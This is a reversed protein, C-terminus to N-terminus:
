ATRAEKLIQLIERESQAGPVSHMEETKALALKLNHERGSGPPLDKAFWPHAWIGDMGLRNEPLYQLVRNLLDRCEPSLSVAARGGDGEGCPFVVSSRKSPAHELVLQEDIGFLMQFLCIGLSWIDALRGDYRGKGHDYWRPRRSKPDPMCALVEPAMYSRTGIYTDPESDDDHKCAGFDILKVCAESPDAMLLHALKIDRNCVGMMHSYDVAMVAQQLFWRSLSEELRGCKRVHDLVSGGALPEMLICLHSPSLCVERFLVIHAHWLNHLHLVERKVYEDVAAGRPILKVAVQARAPDAVRSDWAQVVEGTMGQGIYGQAILFYPLRGDTETACGRPSAAQVTWGHPWHPTEFPM